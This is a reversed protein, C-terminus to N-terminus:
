GEGCKGEGCKGEGCKGEGDAKDAAEGCKGEGCKGEGDAKDAAEGCKGEGCKGEGCKGEAGKNALDYGATLEQIAFPNDTTAASAAPVFASAALAVGMAAALPKMTPKNM